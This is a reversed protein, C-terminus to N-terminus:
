PIRILGLDKHELLLVSENRFGNEEGGARVMRFGMNLPQTSVENFHAPFGRGHGHLATLYYYTVDFGLFAYDRPEDNYAARYAMIFARTRPDSRDVFTSAPVRLHLKDLDGASVSEMDHWASLGYVIIEKDKTLAALKAVLTSVFEVDESPVLVVNTRGSQLLSVLASIERKGTRAVLVSDRLRDTRQALADQAARQM